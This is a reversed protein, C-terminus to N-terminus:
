GDLKPLPSSFQPTVTNPASMSNQPVLIPDEKILSIPPLCTPDVQPDSCLKSLKAQQQRRRIFLQAGLAVLGGPIVLILTSVGIWKLSRPIWGEQQENSM